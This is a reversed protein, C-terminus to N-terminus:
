YSALQWKTSATEKKKKKTFWKELGEYSCTNPIFRLLFYLILLLTVGCWEKIKQTMSGTSASITWINIVSESFVICRTQGLVLLESLWWLEKLDTAEPHHCVPIINLKLLPGNGNLFLTTPFSFISFFSTQLDLYICFWQLIIPCIWIYINIGTLFLSIELYIVVTQYGGQTIRLSNNDFFSKTKTMTTSMNSM